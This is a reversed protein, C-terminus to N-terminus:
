KTTEKAIKLILRPLKKIRRISKLKTVTTGDRELIRETLLKEGAEIEKSELLTKKNSWFTCFTDNFNITFVLSCNGWIKEPSRIM